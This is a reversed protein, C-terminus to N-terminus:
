SGWSQPTDYFEWKSSGLPFYAVDVAKPSSHPCFPLSTNRHLAEPWYTPCMSRLLDRSPDPTGFTSVRAVRFQEAMSGKM